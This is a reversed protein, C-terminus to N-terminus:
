RAAAGYVLDQAIPLLSAACFHKPQKWLGLQPILRSNPRLLMKSLRRNGPSSGLDRILYIPNVCDQVIITLLHAIFGILIADAAFGPHGSLTTALLLSASLFSDMRPKRNAAM